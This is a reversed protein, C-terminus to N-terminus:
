DRAGRQRVASYTSKTAYPSTKSNSISVPVFLLVCASLFHPWFFSCPYLEFPLIFQTREYRESNELPVPRVDRKM